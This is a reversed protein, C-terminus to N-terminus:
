ALHVSLWDDMGHRVNGLAHHDADGAPVEERNFHFSPADLGDTFQRATPSKGHTGLTADEALVAGPMEPAVIGKCALEIAVRNRQRITIPAFSRRGPGFIM